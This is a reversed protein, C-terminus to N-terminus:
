EVEATPGSEGLGAATQLSAISSSLAEARRKVEATLTQYTEDTLGGGEALGSLSTLAYSAVDLIGVRWAETHDSGSLRLNNFAEQTTVNILAFLKSLSHLPEPLALPPRVGIDSCTDSRSNLLTSPTIFPVHKRLFDLNEEIEKLSGDPDFMIFGIECAPLLGVRDLAELARINQEVTGKRYATLRTQSGSEAGLFISFLGAEMLRSLVDEAITDTSCM